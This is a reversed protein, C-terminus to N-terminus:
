QLCISTDITTTHYTNIFTVSPFVLTIAFHFILIPILSDLSLMNFTYFLHLLLLNSHIMYISRSPVKSHCNSFKQVTISLYPWHSFTLNSSNSTYIYHIHYLSSSQTSIIIPYYSNTYNYIILSYYPVIFTTTTHILSELSLINFSYLIYLLLM